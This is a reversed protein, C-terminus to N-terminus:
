SGIYLGIFDGLNRAGDGLNLVRHRGIYNLMQNAVATSPYVDFIWPTDSYTYSFTFGTVM